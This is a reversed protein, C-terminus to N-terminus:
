YNVDELVYFLDICTLVYQVSTLDHLRTTPINSFPFFDGVTLFINEAIDVGRSNFYEYTYNLDTPPPPLFKPLSNKETFNSSDNTIERISYNAYTTQQPVIPITLFVIIVGLFILNKKSSM